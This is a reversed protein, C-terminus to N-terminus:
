VQTDIAEKNTWVGKENCPFNTFKPCDVQHLYILNPFIKGLEIWDLELEGLHKLRLIEVNWQEGQRKRFQGLDLLQGGTIYLKKLVKLTAPKLWHPLTATPFCQLELKQLKPPLTLPSEAEAPCLSAAAIAQRHAPLKKGTQEATPHDDENKSHTEGQLSCGGWSITLKQLGEFKGLTKVESKNPFNELRTYINLKRLKLLRSLDKLTCAPKNKKFEGIFFGKLVELNSLQALSAPMHELFYCESMDLHTLSKLFGINNPIEELNHCAQLDLIKLDNLDLIFKPLKTILSIGRLSLFKLSKVKNLGHLIKEDALEIHHTPQTLQTPSSQWRGLYLSQIHKMNEFVQPECNIIAEGVNILCSHGPQDGGVFRHDLDLNGNSTFGRKKAEEYLCSRLFLSRKCSDPVLSCNQYIPEIFGKEILEDFIENGADEERPLEEKEERCQLYGLTYGQGIWLYIMTMRKITAEPPFKFFCLLCHQLLESLNRFANLLGDFDGTHAVTREKYFFHTMGDAAKNVNPWPNHRQNSYASHIKIQSPIQFKLKATAKQLEELDTAKRLEELVSQNSGLKKLEEFKQHAQHIQVKMQVMYKKAEAFTSDLFLLDSRILQFLAGCHDNSTLPIQLKLDAIAKRLKDFNRERSGIKQLEKFKQSAQNIQVNMHDVYEKLASKVPLFDDPIMESSPSLAEGHQDNKNTTASSSAANQHSNELQKDKSARLKAKFNAALSRVSCKSKTISDQAPIQWKLKTIVKRLEDFDRESGGLKELKEFEERALNIQVNMHDVYEKLASKVHLLDDPIMESSPPLAEGHQDDKNTTTASSSAANDHDNELPKTKTSSNITPTENHIIQSSPSLAGGHHDDKNTTGSSSAAADHNDYEPPKKMKQDANEQPKTITSNNITPTGKPSSPTAEISASAM